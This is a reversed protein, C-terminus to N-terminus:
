NRYIDGSFFVILRAMMKWVMVIALWIGHPCAGGEFMNQHRNSEVSYRGLRRGRQRSGGTFGPM